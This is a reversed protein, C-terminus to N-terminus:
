HCEFDDIFPELYEELNNEDSAILSMFVPNIGDCNWAIVAGWGKQACTNLSM